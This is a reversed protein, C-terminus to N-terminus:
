LPLSRRSKASMWDQKFRHISEVTQPNNEILGNFVNEKLTVAHAGMEALEKVQEPSRLSAALLQSPFAYRRLLGLMERIADIGNIDEDCIRSYYPAIYSAGAKAALLVQNVDFVATAMIPMKGSLDHIAMLGEETVPIKVVIRDSFQHLAEAQKIMTKADSATVQVSIPGKQIKLLAEILDELPLKCEAVISPNTTVGHLVGMKAAKEVLPIDASDLWIQMNEEAQKLM